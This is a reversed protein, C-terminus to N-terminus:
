DAVHIHDGEHLVDYSGSEDAATEILDMAEAETMNPPLRTSPVLDVARGWQQKSDEEGGIRDGRRANRYGSSIIIGYDTDPDDDILDNYEQRVGEAIEATSGPIFYDYDGSNLEYKSFHESNPETVFDGRSPIPHRSLERYEAIIRDITDPGPEHVSSQLLDNARARATASAGVPWM